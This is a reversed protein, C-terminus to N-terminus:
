DREAVVEVAVNVRSGNLTAVGSDLVDIARIQPNGLFVGDMTGDLVLRDGNGVLTGAYDVSVTNGGGVSGNSLAVTGSYSGLDGSGSIYTNANALGGVNTISGSVDTGGNFNVDVNADGILITANFESGAIIAAGGSFSARGTTNDVVRSGSFAMGDVRDGLADFETAQDLLDEEFSQGGCGALTAGLLAAFTMKYISKM